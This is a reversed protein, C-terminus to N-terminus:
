LKGGLATLEVMRQIAVDTWEWAQRLPMDKIFERIFQIEERLKQIELENNM